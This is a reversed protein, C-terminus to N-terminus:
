LHPVRTKGKGSAFGLQLFLLWQLQLVRISTSLRSGVLASPLSSHAVQGVAFVPAVAVQLQWQLQLQLQLQL